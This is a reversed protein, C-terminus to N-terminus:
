QVSIFIKENKLILKSNNSNNCKYTIIRTCAIIRKFIYRYKFTQELNKLLLMTYKTMIFIHDVGQDRLGFIYVIERYAIRYEIYIYDLIQENFNNM